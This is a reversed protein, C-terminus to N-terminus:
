VITPTPVKQVSPVLRTLPSMVTASAAAVMSAEHGVSVPLSLSSAASPL